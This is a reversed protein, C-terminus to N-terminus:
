LDIPLRRCARGLLARCGAQWRRRAISYFMKSRQVKDSIARLTMERCRLLRGSKPPITVTLLPRCKAMERSQDQGSIVRTLPPVARSAGIGGSRRESRERHVFVLIQPRKCISVRRHSRGIVGNNMSRSSADHPGLLSNFRFKLYAFSVFRNCSEAFHNGIVAQWNGDVSPIQHRSDLPHRSIQQGPDNSWRRTRRSTVSLSCLGCCPEALVAQAKAVVDAASHKM